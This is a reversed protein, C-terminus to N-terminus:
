WNTVSGLKMSRFWKKAVNSLIVFFVTCKANNSVMHLEMLDNFHDLHDQSDVKGKYAKINPLKFGEPFPAERIERCFSLGRAEEVLEDDQEEIAVITRRLDESPINRMGRTNM